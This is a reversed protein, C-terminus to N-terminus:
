KTAQYSIAGELLKWFYSDPPIELKINNDELYFTNKTNDYTLLQEGNVKITYYKEDICGNFMEYIIFDSLNYHLRSDDGYTPMLKIVKEENDLIKNTKLSSAMPLQEAEKNKVEEWVLPDGTEPHYGLFSIEGRLHKAMSGSDTFNGWKAAERITEFVEGTNLCKVKRYKIMPSKNVMRWTLPDGTEPDKGATEFIGNIQAFIMSITTGAWKAAEAVDDFSRDKNICKVKLLKNKKTDVKDNEELISTKRTESKLKSQKVEEKKCEKCKANLGYKGSKQKHFYETTAPYEKGCATCVKTAIDKTAPNDAKEEEDIYEWKLQERTVPDMGAFNLKGAIYFDIAPYPTGCWKAAEKVNAFIRNNNLCKVPVDKDFYDKDFIEWKLPEGTEPDTGITDLEGRLHERLKNVGIRAWGAAESNSIFVKGNTICRTPISGCLDTVGYLLEWQLPKGTDPDKGACKRKQRICRAIDASSIGAWEAAQYVSQFTKNNNKCRVRM